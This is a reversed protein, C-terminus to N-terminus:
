NKSIKLLCYFSLPFPLFSPFHSIEIDGFQGRAARLIEKEDSVHEEELRAKPLLLYALKLILDTLRNKVPFGLVILAKIKAVRAIEEFATNLDRVHELVSLSVLGDFVEAVYPLALVSAEALNAEIKEKVIMRKVLHMQRHVDIAHLSRCKTQLEKLFIGSGCGIDLLRDLKDPPFLAAARKLRKLYFARAGPSYYFKLPDAIETPSINERKPLRM